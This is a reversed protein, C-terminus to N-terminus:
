SKLVPVNACLSDETLITVTPKDLITLTLSDSVALCNGNNTSTLVLTVTGAATDASSILYDNSLDFESPDFAGSGSTSWVGTTTPGSVLGNVPVDSDSSCTVIDAGAFVSPPETFYIVLTDEDDPCSFFSGSSTIYLAV